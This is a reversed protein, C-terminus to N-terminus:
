NEIFNIYKKRQFEFEFKLNKQFFMAVKEPLLEKELTIKLLIEIFNQTNQSDYFYALGQFEQYAAFKQELVLMKRWGFALNYTGSIKNDLYEAHAPLQPHVLTLLVDMKELYAEYTQEDIFREFLIVLDDLKEEKLKKFLEQGDETAISGLLVFRISKERFTEKGAKLAAIFYDYDRRAFLVTGCIGVWFESDPKELHSQPHIKPFFVPYLTEIQVSSPLKTTEKFLDSLVFYKKVKLNIIKQSFSKSLKQLYHCVGVIQIKSNLLTRLALQRLQNSHASNDIILQIGHKKCFSLVEKTQKKTSLSQEAFFQIETFTTEQFKGQLKDNFFGYIQYGSDKLIRIHTYFLETHSTGFEVLLAKKSANM